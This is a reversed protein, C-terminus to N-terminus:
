LSRPEVAGHTPGVPRRLHPDHGPLRRRRRRSPDPRPE